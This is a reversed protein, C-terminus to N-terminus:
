FGCARAAESFTVDRKNFEERLREGNIETTVYNPM